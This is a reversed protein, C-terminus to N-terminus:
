GMKMAVLPGATSSDGVDHVNVDVRETGMLGIQDTDFYRDDSRKISVQRREGMAAAKSL